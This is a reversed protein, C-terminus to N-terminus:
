QQEEETTGPIVEGAPLAPTGDAAPETGGTTAPEESHHNALVVAFVPIIAGLVLFVVKWYGPVVFVMALLAMRVSMTILYRKNREELDLTRSTRASTILTSVTHRRSALM